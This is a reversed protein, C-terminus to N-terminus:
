DMYTRPLIGALLPCTTFQFINERKVSFSYNIYNYFNISFQEQFLYKFKTASIVTLM